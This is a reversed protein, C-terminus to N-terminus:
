NPAARKQFAQLGSIVFRRGGRPSSFITVVYARGGTDDKLIWVERGDPMLRVDELEAPHVHQYYWAKGIQNLIEQKLRADAKTPGSPQHIMVHTMSTGGNVKTVKWRFPWGSDEAERNQQSAGLDASPHACGALALTFVSVVISVPTRM